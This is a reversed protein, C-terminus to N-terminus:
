SALAMNYKKALTNRRKNLYSVAEQQLEDAGMWGYARVVKKFNFWDTAGKKLQIKGQVAREVMMQTFIVWASIKKFETSGQHQRFEITGHRRFSQCNLKIYRDPYISNIIEEVSNANQLAELNTRPSKCYTNNMGRRSKAVLEDISDEFRAYMGYINKFTTLSFDNADHHVHIGCSKNVKAGAAELAKCVTELQKLGDHGQLIPSVIELGEYDVSADTVIKWYSRTTHNYGEVHCNIGYERVKAAVEQAGAGRQHSQKLFFEIEVGFTRKTNFGTNKKM